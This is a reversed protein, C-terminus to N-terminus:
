AGPFGPAVYQFVWLDGSHQTLRWDRSGQLGDLLAQYTGPAYTAYYDDRARM